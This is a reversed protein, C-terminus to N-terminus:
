STQWSVSDLISEWTSISDARLQERYYVYLSYLLKGDRIFCSEGEMPVGEASYTYRFCFATKGGLQRDLFEILRYDYNKMAQACSQEMSRVLERDKLMMRSILPLQRHTAIVIMHHDRDQLCMEPRAGYFHMNELSTQDMPTFSEPISISMRGNIMM